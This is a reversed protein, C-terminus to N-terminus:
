PKNHKPKPGAKQRYLQGTTLIANDWARIFGKRSIGGIEEAATKEFDAKKWNETNTVFQAELWKQCQTEKSITAEQQPARERKLSRTAAELDAASVFIWARPGGSGVSFPNAPDIKCFDFRQQLRETNWWVAPIAEFEGGAIGRYTTGLKGSLALAAFTDQMKRFRDLDLAANANRQEVFQTARRHEDASFNFDPRHGYTVPAANMPPPALSDHFEKRGCEPFHKALINNITRVDTNLRIPQMPEALCEEGTWKEEYWARGIRDAARALFVM